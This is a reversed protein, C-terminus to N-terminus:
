RQSLVVWTPSLLYLLYYLMYEERVSLNTKMKRRGLDVIIYMRVCKSFVDFQDVSIM